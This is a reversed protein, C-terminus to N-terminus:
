SALIIFVIRRSTNDVTKNEIAPVAEGALAAKLTVILVVPGCDPPVKEPLTQVGVAGEDTIRTLL